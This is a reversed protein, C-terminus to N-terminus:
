VIPVIVSFFVQFFRVKTAVPASMTLRIETGRPPMALASSSGFSVRGKSGVSRGTGGVAVGLGVGVGM